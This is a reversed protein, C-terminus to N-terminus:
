TNGVYDKFNLRLSQPIVQAKWIWRITDPNLIM